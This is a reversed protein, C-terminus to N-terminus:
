RDMTELRDGRWAIQEDDPPMAWVVVNLAPYLIRRRIQCKGTEIWDITPMTAEPESASFIRKNFAKLV